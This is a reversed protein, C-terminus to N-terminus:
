EKSSIHGSAQRRVPTPLRSNGGATILSQFCLNPRAFQLQARCREVSSFRKPDFASNGSCCAMDARGGFASVHLAVPSTRKTGFASMLQSIAPMSVGYKQRQAFYRTSRGPITSAAFLCFLRPASEPSFCSGALSMSVTATSLRFASSGLRGLLSASM